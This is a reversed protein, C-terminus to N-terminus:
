PQAELFNETDIESTKGCDLCRIIMAQRTEDSSVLKVHTSYCYACKPKDM